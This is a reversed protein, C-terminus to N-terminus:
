RVETAPLTMVTFPPPPPVGPIFIYWVPSSGPIQWSLFPYGNALDALAHGAIDWGTFTALTKMEETTKGTGGDSVSTGSTVIDWFCDLIIAGANDGCLGGVDLVGTVLGIAYCNTINAGTGGVLGGVFQNGTVQGTSYSDAIPGSNQSVLGGVANHGVVQGTSYSQNISGQNVGILGAVGDANAADINGTAFCQSANATAEMQGLLGGVIDAAASTVLINGTAQCRSLVSAGEVHGILGGIYSANNLNITINGSAACGSLHSGDSYGILSGIYEYGETISVSSSCDAITSNFAVGILGGGGVGDWFGFGAGLQYMTLTGSVRCNSYTSNHSDGALGGTYLHGAINVNELIINSITAGDTYGFLGIGPTCPRNLNFNNIKYGSANFSGTFPQTYDGIPAFDFGGTRHYLQFALDYNGGGVLIWTGGGDLSRWLQGGPYPNGTAARPSVNATSHMVIAYLTGAILALDPVTIEHWHGYNNPLRTDITGFTLDPGVPQGAATAKISVTLIGSPPPVIGGFKVAIRNITYNGAATFTQAWWELGNVTFAHTGTGPDYNHDRQTVIVAATAGADINNALEYEGALDLNMNQLENLNHILTAM